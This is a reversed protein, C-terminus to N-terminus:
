QLCWILGQRTDLAKLINKFKRNSITINLATVALVTFFMINVPSTGFMEAAWYQPRDTGHDATSELFTNLSNHMINRNGLLDKQCGAIMNHGM